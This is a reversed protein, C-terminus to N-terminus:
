VVNTKITIGYKEELEKKAILAFQKTRIYWGGVDKSFYFTNEDDRSLPSFKKFYDKIPFTNGKFVYRGKSDKELTIVINNSYSESINEVNQKLLKKFESLSLEKIGGFFKPSDYHMLYIDKAHQTNEAGLITKTEDFEGTKPNNQFIVFVKNSNTKYPTVYVDIMEGDHTETKPIRGYNWKILTKWKTGDRNKGSRITGIKNEIDIPISNWYMRKTPYDTESEILKIQINM